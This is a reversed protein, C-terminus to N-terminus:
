QLLCPLHADLLGPCPSPVQSVHADIDALSLLGRRLLADVADPRWVPHQEQGIHQAALWLRTCHPQLAWGRQSGADVVLRMAQAMAATHLRRISCATLLIVHWAAPSICFDHQM